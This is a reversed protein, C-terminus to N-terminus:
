LFLKFKQILKKKLYEIFTTCIKRQFRRNWSNETLWFTLFIFQLQANNNNNNNYKSLTTTYFLHIKTLTFFWFFRIQFSHLGKSKISRWSCIKFKVSKKKYLIFFIYFVIENSYYVNWFGSGSHMCMKFLWVDMCSFFLIFFLHVKLLLFFM